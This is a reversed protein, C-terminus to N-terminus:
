KLYGKYWLYFPSILSKIYLEMECAAVLDTKVSMGYKLLQFLIKRLDNVLYALLLIPKLYSKVGVMRTVYRSLGIGGIFPILYERKLRHAPIKHTVKMEPNYWIEWGKSQIYGLVELDESTLMSGEVRGTLICKEPVSELWAKKRVVLGASPPLYKLTPNYLLPQSGRDTLALFPKIRDFNPPPQVEFEGTILSAFAGAQPHQQAFDDASQVWNADPINDDDLFGVLSSNAENIGRQRAFAAGQKEECFYKLPCDEQWNKQYEQIVQKTHDISNNDIVIIEWTLNQTFQQLKLSDLVANVRKAGNYTPIVVTFDIKTRMM